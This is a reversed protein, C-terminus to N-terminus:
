NSIVISKYIAFCKNPVNLEKCNWLCSIEKREDKLDLGLTEIKSPLNYKQM